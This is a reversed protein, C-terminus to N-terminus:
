WQNRKKGIEQFLMRLISHNENGGDLYVDKQEFLEIETEDLGCISMRFTEPMMWNRKPRNHDFEIRM